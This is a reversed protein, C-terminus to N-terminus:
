LYYNKVDILYSLLGLTQVNMQGWYTLAKVDNQDESNFIRLDAEQAPASVYVKSKKDFVENWLDNGQRLVLTDEVQNFNFDPFLSELCYFIDSKAQEFYFEPKAGAQKPYLYKFLCTDEDKFHAEWLPYDGGVRKSYNFIISKGSYAKFLDTPYKIEILLDTFTRYTSEHGFPTQSHFNGVYYTEKPHVVGEYSSLLIRILNKQYFQWYQITTNKIDGNNEFLDVELKENLEDEALEYRPSLLQILLYKIEFASFSDSFLSQFKGQITFLLQKMQIPVAKTEEDYFHQLFDKLLVRYLENCSKNIFSEDIRQGKKLKFCNEAFTNFFITSLRNFDAKNQQEFLQQSEHSFCEPLKRMLERFNEYPSRGLLLIRDDLKLFYDKQILYDSIGEISSISNAEGLRILFNKELESINQKLNTGFKVREDNVLLVSSKNKLLLLSMVFSLYNRGVVINDYQSDLM